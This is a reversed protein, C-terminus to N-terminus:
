EYPFVEKSFILKDTEPGDSKIHMRTHTFKDYPHDCSAVFNNVLTDLSANLFKISDIFRLYFIDFSMFQELNLATSEVNPPYKDTNKGYKAARRPNFFRFIFKADYRSLNHMVVSIHFKYKNKENNAEPITSFDRLNKTGESLKRQSKLQLNCSNCVAAIFAGTAHNHHRVKINKDAFAENCSRCEATKDFKEQQHASLPLMQINM